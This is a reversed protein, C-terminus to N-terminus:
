FDVLIGIPLEEQVPESNEKDWGLLKKELSDYDYERPTFNNFSKPNIIPMEIVKKQVRDIAGLIYSANVREVTISNIASELIDKRTSNIVEKQKKSLVISEFRRLIMEVNETEIEKTEIEKTEILEDVYIQGQVPLNENYDVPVYKTEEKPFKVIIFNDIGTIFYRNNENFNRKVVILGKEVLKKTTTSIRNKSTTNFAKMLDTVPPYAYGDKCSHFEFLLELLYQENVSLNKTRIHKRFKIFDKIHKSTTM